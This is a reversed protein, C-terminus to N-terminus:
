QHAVATTLPTHQCGNLVVSEDGRCKVALAMELAVSGPPDNLEDVILEACAEADRLLDTNLALPQRALELYCGVVRRKCVRVGSSHRKRPLRCAPCNWLRM